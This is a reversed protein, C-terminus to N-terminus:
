KLEVLTSSVVDGQYIISVNYNGPKLKEIDDKEVICSVKTEKGTYNATTKGSYILSKKGFEVTGKNAVVNMKNDLIQIYFTKSGKSLTKNKVITFEVHFKKTRRAFRTDIVRQKSNVRKAGQVKLNSVFLSRINLPPQEEKKNLLHNYKKEILANLSDRTKIATVYDLQETKLLQNEAELSQVVHIMNDRDNKLNKLQTRFKSILDRDFKLERVSDRTAILRDKSLKLQLSLSDNLVNITDYSDIMESLEYLILKKEQALLKSKEQVELYSSIAFFSFLFVLCGGIAIVIRFNSIQPIVMM